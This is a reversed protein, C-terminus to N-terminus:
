APVYKPRWNDMLKNVFVSDHVETIKHLSDIDFGATYRGDKSNQAITFFRKGVPPAEYIKIVPDELTSRAVFILREVNMCKSLQNRLLHTDSTIPVTFAPKRGHPFPFGRYISQTKVEVNAGNVTLDKEEDFKNTSRVVVHSNKIFFQEVLEEGLSGIEYNSLNHM